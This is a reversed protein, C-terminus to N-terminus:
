HGATQLVAITMESGSWICVWVQCDGVYIAPAQYLIRELSPFPALQKCHTKPWAKFFPTSICSEWVYWLIKTEGFCLYDVLLLLLNNLAIGCITYATM